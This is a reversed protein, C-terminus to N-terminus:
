RWPEVLYLSGFDDVVARTQPLWAEIVSSGGGGVSISVLYPAPHAPMEGRMGRPGYTRQFDCNVKAGASYGNSHFYPAASM